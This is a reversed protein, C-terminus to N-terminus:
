DEKDDINHEKAYWKWIMSVKWDLKEFRASMRWGFVVLAGITSVISIVNGVTITPELTM